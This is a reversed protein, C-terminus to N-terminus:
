VNVGSRTLIQEVWKMSTMEGTKPTAGKIRRVRGRRIYYGEGAGLLRGSEGAPLRAGFVAADAHETTGLLVGAPSEKLAKAVGDYGQSFALMPGAVLLHFGVNRDKRVWNDLRDKPGPVVGDRLADRLADLDDVALVLSPQGALFEKEDFFGRSEQRAEAIASRRLQLAQEVQEFAEGAQGATGAYLEVHPLGSLLALGGAGVDVLWLRLHECSRHVALSLIWSQLFSSKGSEAGGTIMFHPGDQLDIGFPELTAVDLGVPVSSAEM